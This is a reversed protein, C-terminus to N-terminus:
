SCSSPCPFLRVAVRRMMAAPTKAVGAGALLLRRMWADACDECVQVANPSYVGDALQVLCKDSWIKQEIYFRKMQIQLSKM